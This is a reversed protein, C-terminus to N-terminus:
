SSKDNAEGIEQYLYLLNKVIQDWSFLEVARKRAARGMSKRLKEDSLLRLIAEALASADGREVLLGTEGDVVLEPTGGGRTAVIPVGTAMAEVIPMSCPENCVSPFVCMDAERYRNVLLRHPVTGIFSVHGVASSSLQDQLNSIYNGNYFRRLDIEKPDNSLAILNKIPLQFQQGVINLQVQPYQKLVMQFAELLVHVGKEPSVRGVFLIQKTDTKNHETHKSKDFTTVDVGNYVTKCRDAFQPFCARIKETIYQSVGIVLDLKKLRSEIIGRNIQTLWECHMHLVIKIKPDLIRIIPVFQSFNHIHVVDCKESRLDRAVRFAHTLYYLSSAFFPRRSFSRPLRKDVGETLYAFKEDFGAAFHRYQVREDYEFEKQHPGRITYVIVDCYKALRRAVEYTWIEVASNLNQLSITNIPQHFFAIKM